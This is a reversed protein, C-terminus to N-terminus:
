IWKFKKAIKVLHLLLFNKKSNLNMCPLYDIYTNIDKKTKKSNKLEIICVIKCNM